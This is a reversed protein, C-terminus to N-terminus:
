FPFKLWGELIVDKATNTVPRYYTGFPYEPTLSTHLTINGFIDQSFLLYIGIYQPKESESYRNEPLILEPKLTSVEIYRTNKYCRFQWESFPRQESTEADYRYKLYNICYNSSNFEVDEPNLAALENADVLPGSADLVYDPVMGSFEKGCYISVCGDYVNYDGPLCQTGTVKQYKTLENIDNPLTVGFHGYLAPLFGAYDVGTELSTGGKVFPVKNVLSYAYEVLAKGDVSTAQPATPAPAETAKETANEASNKSEDSTKETSEAEESSSEDAPDSTDSAEDSEDKTEKESENLEDSAQESRNGSEPTGEKKCASCLLSFASLLCILVFYFSKKRM